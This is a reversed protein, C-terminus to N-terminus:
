RSAGTQATVTGTLADIQYLGTDTELQWVPTLRITSSAADVAAYGQSLARVATAGDALGSGLFAALADAAPMSAQGGSATVVGRHFTGDVATLHGDTYTLTLRASFDPMGDVSQIATVTDSGAELSWPIFGMQRLVTEAPEATGGTLVASIAGDAGIQCTGAASTYVRLYRTADNEVMVQQGLLATATELADDPEVTLAYLSREEQLVSDPLSIGHGAYLRVLQSQLQQSQQRQAHDAPIVLVLLLLNALLLILIVINKVKSGPM